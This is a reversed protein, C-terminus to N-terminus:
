DKFKFHYGRVNDIIGYCCDSIDHTRKYNLWEAAKNISTFEMGNDICIVPKAKGKKVDGGRAIARAKTLKLDYNRQEFRNILVQKSTPSQELDEYWEPHLKKIVEYAEEFSTYKNEKCWEWIHQNRSKAYLYNLHRNTSHIM